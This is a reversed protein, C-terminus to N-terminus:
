RALKFKTVFVIQDKRYTVNIRGNFITVLNRAMSLGIGFGSQGKTTHAENDRYFRDFFRSYDVGKGAAYTNAIELTANRGEKKLVVTITGHPDCYKVANDLLINCLEYFYNEDVVLQIGKSIQYNFQKDENEVLPKFSDVARQVNASADIKQFDFEPDEDLRTLNILNNILRTLRSIQQKNNKTWESEGDLMEAMENNASIIALPTKLEHGANTIFQKQRKEATIIPRIARKSFLILVVTFLAWGIVAICLGIKSIAFTANNLTTKDLFIIERTGDSKKIIRYAYIANDSDITGSTNKDKKVLKALYTADESTLSPSNTLDVNKVSGSKNYFITFYRYQLINIATSNSGLSKKAAQTAERHDLQGDHQVLIDMISDVQRNTQIVSVGIVATMITALVFLLSTSSIFIFLRRFRQIM